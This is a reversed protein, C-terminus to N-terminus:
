YVFFISSHLFFSSWVNKLDIVMLFVWLLLFFFFHCFFSFISAILFLFSVILGGLTPTKPPETKPRLQSSWGLMSSVNTAHRAQQPAPRNSKTSRTKISPWQRHGQDLMSGSPINDKTPQYGLKNRIQNFHSIIHSQFNHKWSATCERVIQKCLNIYTCLCTVSQQIFLLLLSFFLNM